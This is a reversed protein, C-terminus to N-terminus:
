LCPAPGGPAERPAEGLGDWPRRLPGAARGAPCSRQVDCWGCRSGPRPPFLVDADAGAELAGTATSAEAATAEARSLHRALSAETHDFAVVTGTPLHHLEVREAHRRLTRRTALVYLALALSGRADQSTLGARGTKYDVVVLEDGRRDIRDVRGSVTLSGTRVAVTREVGAPEDDPDLAAACREVMEGARERWRDAQGQDAFGDLGGRHAPWAADLLGRAVLPTRRRRPESWWRALALHVAAGVTNHAWPQGRPPPPRDLYTLRYRRPCDQWTRLRSPTCAFLRSPMGALGLQEHM